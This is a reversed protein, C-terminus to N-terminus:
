ETTENIRDVYADIQEDTYGVLNAADRLLAPLQEDGIVLLTDILGREGKKPDGEKKTGSGTNDKVGIDIDSSVALFVQSQAIRAIEVTITVELIDYNQPNRPLSINTLVCNEYAKYKSVLTFTKSNSWLDNLIDYARQTRNVSDNVRNNTSTNGVVNPIPYNQICGNFTIRPNSKSVHDSVSSGDSIPHSSLSSTWTEGVDVLSDFILVNDELVGDPKDLIISGIM